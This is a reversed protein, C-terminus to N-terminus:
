FMQASYDITKKRSGRLLGALLFAPISILLWEAIGGSGSLLTYNDVTVYGVYTFAAISLVPAIVTV